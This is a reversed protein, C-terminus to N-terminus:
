ISNNTYTTHRKRRPRRPIFFSMKMEMDMEFGACFSVPDTKDYVLRIGQDRSGLISVGVLVLILVVPRTSFFRCVTHSCSFARLLGM